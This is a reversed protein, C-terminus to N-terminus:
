HSLANLERMIGLEDIPHIVVVDRVGRNTRRKTNENHNHYEVEIDRIKGDRSVKVGTVIGYQYQKDFQKDSKLFLVVDGIKTDRDSTYWKPQFMLTPVYSVLWCKFWINFIENNTQIIKKIDDTVELTGMPCRDNNRALILRNPTLIDLNELDEVINGIAIPLNNISNAVQNGLTEWQIISLRSNNNCKSFSEQVHKIKREVKGHMYHAGVPCTQFDVGYETHLKHRIDCFKLTMIECGKILQSGADPMLKKPYGVKCSFRIFALIFSNTSYDEMVKLDVAGTTCCCFILFWIKATARKNINSYSNFPGFIDVQSIYFAPAICLNNASIPGMAVEVARKRLLKCRACEKRFKKVLSRGEIIYAIKHINRLVTENGSHKADDNYWHVENVLAYALPSYTEM